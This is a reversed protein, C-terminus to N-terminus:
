YIAAWDGLGTYTSGSKKVARLRYKYGTKYAIRVNSITKGFSSTKWTKGKDTSTQVEFATQLNNAFGTWGSWSIDIIGPDLYWSVPLSSFYVWHISVISSSGSPTGDAKEPKICTQVGYQIDEDYGFEYDTYSAGPADVIDWDVWVGAPINRKWIHTWLLTSASVNTKWKLLITGSANSVALNSPPAVTAAVQTSETNGVGVPQVNNSCSSMLLVASLGSILATGKLLFSSKM